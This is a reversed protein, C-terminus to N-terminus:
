VTEVCYLLVRRDGGVAVIPYRSHWSLGNTIKTDVTVIPQNTRINFVKLQFGPRGTTALLHDHSWCWDICSGGDCHAQMSELPFSSRSTDFIFWDTGALATIRLTNTFCWDASVLLSHGCDLSLFAQQTALSYFRVIGKKEAVMIQGPEKPHWRVTMGPSTLPFCVVKENTTAASWVVCTHDDSVSAVQDGKDPSSAVSNVYDKHEGILTVTTDSKLNSTLCRVKKDSGATYLRLVRPISVFDTQPSWSIDTVRSGHHFEAVPEFEIKNVTAKEEQVTCKVVVVRSSTGIALVGASWELPSFRVVYVSDHCDYIFRKPTKDEPM